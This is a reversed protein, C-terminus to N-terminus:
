VATVPRAAVWKKINPLDGVKAVLAAVKPAADVATKDPLETCFYYVLVDAWSLHGGAMYEGGREVCRKELATLLVPLLTESFAKQLEAKKAEDKEFLFATYQKETADSLADVVEDMQACELATKGELGALTACYRAITMSQAIEVGDVCLVPLQGYPTSPKHVLWPAIDEFPSTIRHDEYVVGGQALILRAPEGRARLNFYTLKVAPM